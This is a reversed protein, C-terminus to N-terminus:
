SLISSCAFLFLVVNRDLFLMFVQSEHQWLTELEGGTYIVNASLNKNGCRKWNERKIYLVRLNGLSVWSPLTSFPCSSWSLWVLQPSQAVSFISQVSNSEARLLQLGSMNTPIEFSQEPGNRPVMSIGRVYSQDTLNYPPNDASCWLRHPTEKKAIDRGLDRLHDHM